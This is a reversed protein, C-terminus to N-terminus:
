KLSRKIKNLKILKCRCNFMYYLLNRITNNYVFIKSTQIRTTMSISSNVNNQKKCEQFDFFTLNCCRNTPSYHHLHM